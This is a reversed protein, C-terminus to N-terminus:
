DVHRYDTSLSSLNMIFFFPLMQMWGDVRIWTGTKLDISRSSPRNLCDIEFAIM